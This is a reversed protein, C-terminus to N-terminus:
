GGIIEKVYNGVPTEMTIEAYDLYYEPADGCFWENSIGVIQSETCEEVYQKCEGIKENVYDSNEKVHSVFEELPEIFRNIVFLGWNDGYSTQLMIDIKKNGNEMYIRFFDLEAAKTLKEFKKM